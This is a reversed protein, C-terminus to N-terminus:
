NDTEDGSLNHEDIRTIPRGDMHKVHATRGGPYTITGEFKDGFWNGKRVTGDPM